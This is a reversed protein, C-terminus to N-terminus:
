GRRIVGHGSLWNNYGAHYRGASVGQLYNRFEAASHGRQGAGVYGDPAVYSGGPKIYSNNTIPSNSVFRGGPYRVSNSM